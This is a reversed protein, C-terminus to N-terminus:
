FIFGILKSCIFDTGAGLILGGVYVGIFALVKIIAHKEALTAGNLIEYMVFMPYWYAIIPILALLAPIASILNLDTINNIILWRLAVSFICAIYIFGMFWLWSWHFPRIGLITNVEFEHNQTKEGVKGGWYALGISGIIALVMSVSWGIISEVVIINKYFFYLCIISFLISPINAISAVISGKKKATAGVLFAACFTAIMVAILSLIYHDGWGKGESRTDRAFTYSMAGILMPKYFMYIFLSGIYRRVSLFTSRENVKKDIEFVNNGLDYEKKGCCIFGGIIYIILVGALFWLFYKALPIAHKLMAEYSDEEIDDLELTANSDGSSTGGYLRAFNPDSSNYDIDGITQESLPYKQAVTDAKAVCSAISLLFFISLIFKVHRMKKM